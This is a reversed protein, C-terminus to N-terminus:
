YGVMEVGLDLGPPSLALPTRSLSLNERAKPLFHHISPLQTVNLRRTPADKAKRM